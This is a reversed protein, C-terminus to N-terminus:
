GNYLCFYLMHSFVSEGVKHGYEGQKEARCTSHCLWHRMRRHACGGIRLLHFQGNDILVDVVGVTGALVTVGVDVRGLRGVDMGVTRFVVDVRQFATGGYDIVHLGVLPQFDDFIVELVPFVIGQPAFGACEIGECVVGLVEVGEHPFGHLASERVTSPIKPYGEVSAGVVDVGLVRRGDGHHIGAGVADHFQHLGSRQRLHHCARVVALVHCDGM